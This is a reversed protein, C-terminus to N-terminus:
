CEYCCGTRGSCLAGSDMWGDMWGLFSTVLLWVIFMPIAEETLPPTSREPSPVGCWLVHVPPISTHRSSPM